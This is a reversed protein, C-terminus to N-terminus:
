DNKKFQYVSGNAVSWQFKRCHEYILFPLNVDEIFTFNHKSLVNKLTDLTRVPEGTKEDYYGGLWNSKPTYDELWTYPSTIVVIGNDNLLESLQNLFLIPTHLRDILNAALIVDFKGLNKNLVNHADGQQFSVRSRDISPDITAIRDVVISGEVTQLYKLKGTQQLDNCAQVFSNSYDIGIVENCYRALEFSSRGVACGLDLARINNNNNNNNNSDNNNIAKLHKIALEACRVPFDFASKPGFEYPLLNELTGYHFTLYEFLSKKTEYINQKSVKTMRFGGHQHFHKRFAYRGYVSSENGTSIWSGGLIMEHRGDFCPTSFDLYTFHTKFGPLANFKTQSLEWVNGFVDYFGLANPKYFNVPNSSSYKLNLNYKESEEKNLGPDKNIIEDTIKLDDDDEDENEPIPREINTIKWWEHETILRYEPGKWKLFAEAELHNVEVPWDWPMDIEEFITRLKFKSADIPVWFHPHTVKSFQVWNWGEESWFLKTEYGKANIFEL